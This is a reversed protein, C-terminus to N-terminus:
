KQKKYDVLGFQKGKKRLMYNVVNCVIISIGIGLFIGLFLM